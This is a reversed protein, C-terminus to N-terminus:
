FARATRSLAEYDMQANDTHPMQPNKNVRALILDDQHAMDALPLRWQPQLVQNFSLAISRKAHTVSDLTRLVMQEVDHFSLDKITKSSLHLRENNMMPRIKASLDRSWTCGSTINCRRIDETHTQEHKGGSTGDITGEPPIPNRPAFAHFNSSVWDRWYSTYDSDTESNFDDM